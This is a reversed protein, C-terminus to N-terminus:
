LAVNRGYKRMEEAVKRYNDEIESPHLYRTGKDMKVAEIAEELNKPLETDLRKIAEDVRFIIIPDHARNYVGQNNDDVMADYHKTMYDAYKKATEYKGINEMCHNFLLYAAEYDDETKLKKLNVELMKKHAPNSIDNKNRGIYQRKFRDQVDAMDKLAQKNNENLIGKFAEFREKRNPMQLDKVVEYEYRAITQRGSYRYDQLYTAFAGEYVAKDYEDDPNYFYMWTKDRAARKEPNQWASVSRLKMGKHLTKDEIPYPPGNRVGWKQGKIGHHQLHM